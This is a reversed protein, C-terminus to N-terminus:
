LAAAAEIRRTIAPGPLYQSYVAAGFVLGCDAPLTASGDFHAYIILYVGLFLALILSLSIVVAKAFFTVAAGILPLVRKMQRGDRHIYSVRHRPADQELSAM